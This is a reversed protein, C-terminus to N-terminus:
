KRKAVVLINQSLIFKKLGTEAMLLIRYKFTFMEWIIRRILSIVNHVIPKDEYGCVDVYGTASLIQKLSKLTFANEHTFDGYKVRMGFLGEGNPVHIILIGNPVLVHNIKELFDLVENSEIHELVDMLLIVEYKNETTSLYEVINAQKVETIGLQHAMDVEERSIDIGTVNKYGAHKIFYIFSGHGCGLDLITTNKNKPFHKNIIHQHSVKRKSFINKTNMDDASQGTSLYSNYLKDKFTSKTM